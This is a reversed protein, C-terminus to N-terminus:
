LLYKSLKLKNLGRNNGRLKIDVIKDWDKYMMFEKFVEIPIYMNGYKSRLQIVQENGSSILRSRIWVNDNHYHSIWKTHPIKEKKPLELINLKYALAFLYPCEKGKKKCTMDIIHSNTVIFRHALQGEQWCTHVQQVAGNKKTWRFDEPKLLRFVEYGFFLKTRIQEKKEKFYKIRTKFM